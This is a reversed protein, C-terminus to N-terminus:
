TVMAVTEKGQDENVVEEYKRTKYFNRKELFSTMVLDAMITAISLLGIGSGFTIFFAVISFKAATGSVNIVFRVGPWPKIIPSSLAFHRLVYRLAQITNTYVHRHRRHGHLHWHPLQVWGNALNLLFLYFVRFSVFPLLISTM